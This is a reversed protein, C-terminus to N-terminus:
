RRRYDERGRVQILRQGRLSYMPSRFIEGTSIKVLGQVRTEESPQRRRVRVPKARLPSTTEPFFRGVLDPGAVGTTATRLYKIPAPVTFAHGDKPAIEKPLEAEGEDVMWLRSNSRDLRSAFLLKSPSGERFGLQVVRININGLNAVRIRAARADGASRVSEITAKVVPTDAQREREESKRSHWIQWALGGATLLTGTVVGVATWNVEMSM